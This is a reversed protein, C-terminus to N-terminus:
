FYKINILIVRISVHGKFYWVYNAAPNAEATCLIKDSPHGERITVISDSIEINEPKDVLM